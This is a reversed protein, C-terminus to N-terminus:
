SNMLPTAPYAALALRQRTFLTEPSPRPDLPAVLPIGVVGTELFLILGKKTGLSEKGVGFVGHM